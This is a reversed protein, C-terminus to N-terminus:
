PRFRVWGRTVNRPLGECFHDFTATFRTLGGDPGLELEHVEFAGGVSNCGRGEGTLDLGPATQRRFGAREAGRYRGVQLREGRPAAFELDWIPLGREGGAIPQSGLGFGVTSPDSPPARAIIVGNPEFVRRQVVYSGAAGDLLYGSTFDMWRTPDVGTGADVDIPGPTVGGDEDTASASLPVFLTAIRGKWTASVTVASVGCRAETTPCTLTVTAQGTEDLDVTVPTELSGRDSQVTVSGTGWTGPREEALVQVRGLSGRQLPSPTVVLDLRPAPAECALTVLGSILVALHLGSRVLRASAPISSIRGTIFPTTFSPSCRRELQGSIPSPSILWCMRRVRVLM